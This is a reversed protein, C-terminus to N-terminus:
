DELGAKLRRLEEVRAEIEDASTLVPEMDLGRIWVMGDRAPNLRQEPLSVEEGCGLKVFVYPMNIGLETFFHHTTFFRGINIETPNPVGDADYTLDVGFLGHPSPDVALVAQRAIEDLVADSTTVGAGTAGSIGSPSAKALEWYLRRRGQALVLEGHHWISMWTISTPELLEAATFSGWGQHFDIWARATDFDHAALSGRGGAGEIARLWAHGGFRDLAARLDDGDRLRVTEPVKIGAGRWSEYSRLKDQCIAVTEAAPLFMTAEIGERNDSLVRLEWDNQAHVFEVGEVEIVHNLIELYSAERPLPVLYSRDAEARMLHYPDADTGILRFPEPASRLSRVFNTAPAGGAGTVLVTKM